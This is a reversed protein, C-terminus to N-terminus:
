DSAPQIESRGESRFDDPRRSEIPDQNVGFVPRAGLALNQALQLCQLVCRRRRDDPNLGVLPLTEVPDQIEACFADHTRANTCEVVGLLRDLRAVENHEFYSLLPKDIGFHALIRGTTRTDETAILSCERLVRLARLTIDELNGIPTTVLYLTGM